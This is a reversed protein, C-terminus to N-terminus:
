GTSAVTENLVEAPTKFGLTQRPRGNLERAVADLKAQTYHALSQGRPFYQRLLGNTNENSGRQWPSHPDCFYVQLKTDVSFRAHQHMEAGRDWTLSRRLEQPLKRIHRSLAKIVTPSDRSPIKVLMVYRSRREVLTAIHSSLTGALLDGEWHGPVARDAAEAPRASIPLAETIQNNGVKRGKGHRGQSRPYRLGRQTRLQMLLQKKLVGRSQVYLSRYITEHSVYGGQAHAYTRALWGSIQQPSWRRALKGAVLGRLKGNRALLCAQPRRAQDWARQEASCARYAAQGGNRRVERSLSSAARGLKRALSRLSEGQCLGRSIEEREALTLSRASRRRAPPSMGGRDGVAQRVRHELLQLGRAIQVMNEGARWRDWIRQRETASLLEAARALGSM